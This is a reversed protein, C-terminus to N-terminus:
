QVGKFLLCLVKEKERRNVLGNLVFGGSKHMIRLVESEAINNIKMVWQM